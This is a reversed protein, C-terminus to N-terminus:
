VEQNKEAILGRAIARAESGLQGSFEEILEEYSKCEEVAEEVLKHFGSRTVELRFVENTLVGVNEGFTEITPPAVVSKLGSRRLVSVCSRPVEQLVVPSHTAIIALGNRKALLDAISRIFASLLPPHLHGEPEDLIVLTREDVLEVLRTITLLVIAHGSSLNDFLHRASEKWSRDDLDLLGGINSKRFLRDGNFMKLALLWRKARPGSRCKSLSEVFDNTLMEPTKVQSKAEDNVTAKKRLGIQSSKIGSVMAPIDFDDFASFSVYVVGAFM